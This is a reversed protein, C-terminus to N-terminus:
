GRPGAPTVNKTDITDFGFTLSSFTTDFDAASNGAIPTTWIVNIQWRGQRPIAFFARGAADSRVEAIPKADFDLNNLKVLAGPLPKGDYIIRVPLAEGAALAYPNKQPVIELKLGIPRTVAGRDGARPLAGVQILAKGRRSYIERGETAEIGRRARLAIAPTLGEVKLYDNFRLAPLTSVAHSTEIMVIHTGPTELRLVADESGSETHLLGRRDFTGGAGIDAFRVVRSAKVGWRQRDAGHGVFLTVPVAAGPAVLFRAPQIWFDHGAAPVAVLALALVMTRRM